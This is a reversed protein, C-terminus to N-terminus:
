IYHSFKIQIRNSVFWSYLINKLCSSCISYPRPTVHCWPIITLKHPIIIASHNHLLIVMIRTSVYQTLFSITCQRLNAVLCKLLSFLPPAHICYTLYLGSLQQYMWPSEDDGVKHTNLDKLFFIKFLVFTVYKIHLLIFKLIYSM